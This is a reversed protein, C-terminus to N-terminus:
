AVFPIDPIPFGPVGGMPAAPVGFLGLLAMGVQMLAQQRQARRQAEMIARQQQAQIHQLYAQLGLREAMVELGTRIGREGLRLRRAIEEQAPPLAAGVGWLEAGRGIPALLEPSIRHLEGIWEEARPRMIELFRRRVEEPQVVPIEIRPTRGM